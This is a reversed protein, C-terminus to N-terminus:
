SKAVAYYDYAWRKRTEANWWYVSQALDLLNVEGRRLDIARRLHQYLLEDDDEISLLRRFRLDSLGPKDGSAALQHALSKRPQHRKVHSALGAIMALRAKRLAGYGMLSGHLHNFSPVFVVEDGSRARRLHARDGKHDELTKWWKVLKEGAPSEILTPDEESRPMMWKLYSTM